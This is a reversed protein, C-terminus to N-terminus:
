RQDINWDKRGSFSRKVPAINKPPLVPKAPPPIIIPADPVDGVVVPPPLAKARPRVTSTKTKPRGTSPNVPQKAVGAQPAAPKKGSRQKLKERAKKAAQEAKNKEQAKQLLQRQKERLLRQRELQKRRKAQAEERAKREQEFLRRQEEQLAELKDLTRNLAAVSLHSKLASFDSSPALSSPVGAYAIEFGPVNGPEDLNLRVSIDSLGTAIEYVVRLTGKGGDGKIAIPDMTLVGNAIKLKGSGGGVAMDGTRLVESILKEVDQATEANPLQRAFKAPSINKVLGDSLAYNGQGSLDALVGAPTRGSGSFGAKFSFKGGLVENGRATKLIDRLVVTDSTTGTLRTVQSGLQFDFGAAIKDRGDRAGDIAVKVKNGVANLKVTAGSLFFQPWLDLQDARVTINAAALGFVDFAFRASASHAKGNRELLASALLYGLSARGISVSLDVKSGKDVQTVALDGSLSSGAATGRLDKLSLLSPSWDLKGEASFVKAIQSAKGPYVGLVALVHDTNQVLVALRGKANLGTEPWFIKGSFQSQVGFGSVDGTSALGDKVRGTATMAVRGASDKGREVKINALALLQRASKSEMQGSIHVRGNQWDKINGSFKGNGTFTAGGSNGSIRTNVVSRENEDSAVVNLRIALPSAAALWDDGLVGIGFLKMIRAPKPAKLDADLAGSIKDGDFKILGSLDINAGAVDAIQVTRFDMGNESAKVDIKVAGTDIGNLRMKNLSGALSFDREGVVEAMLNVFAVPLGAGRHLALLGQPAYADFNLENASMRISLSPASGNALAITLKGSTEDLSFLGENLRLNDPSFDVKGSLKFRGRQGSWRAEIQRKFDSGAWKSFDKLSIGDLSLDGTLQPQGKGALLSGSFRAKTTGPLNARLNRIKLINEFISFDLRTGEFTQGGVIFSTVDLRTKIEVRSPLSDVIAALADLSRVSRLTKRGRIGLMSDINLRSAKLAADARIVSGLTVKAKGTVFTNIDVANQPAIEIKTFDLTDFDAKVDAKLTLPRFDSQQNSKGRRSTTPVVKLRGTIQDKGAEDVAGDFSYIAGASDIPSLRFGFKLAKGARWKGTTVSIALGDQGVVAEGRLKWPGALSRSSVVANFDDIQSEGGRKGDALVITGNKIAIGDVAIDDAAFIGTLNKEPQINWTGRGAPLREFGFVPRELQIGQVELKGSILPALALRIDVREARLLEPLRAGPPNAIRVDDFRLRPWPFLRVSIDGLVKTDRGTLQQGYREIKGRYGNWDIFYPVVLASAAIAIVLIGLLLLPSKFIKM